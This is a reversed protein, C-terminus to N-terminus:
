FEQATQGQVTQRKVKQSVLKSNASSAGWQSVLKYAFGFVSRDSSTALGVDAFHSSASTSSSSHSLSPM